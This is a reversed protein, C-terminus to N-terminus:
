VSQRQEIELSISVQHFLRVWGFSILEVVDHSKSNDGDFTSFQYDNKYYGM